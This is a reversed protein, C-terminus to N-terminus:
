LNLLVQALMGKDAEVLAPTAAPVVRLEVDEGILRRLMTMLEPVWSNVDLVAPKLVEQRSFALLQRTLHSATDAADIVKSLYGPLSSDADAKHLSLETYGRIIQLMNNFDHAVGGALQGIAEMKQSQRLQNELVTRHTVDTLTVQVAPQGQWDVPQMFAELRLGTGDRRIADMEFPESSEQGATTEATAVRYAAAWAEAEVVATLDGLAIVEEVGGFGLLGAFAENAFVPVLNQAIVIGQQSGEILSRFRQESERVAAEAAVRDSVDRLIVTFFFQGRLDTRTISAEAPFEEGSKRQGVITDRTSMARGTDGSSAFEHVHQRHRQHLREPILQDLPRGIIEAHDYGFIQEAGRNFLLVKQEADVTIIADVAMNLISTLREESYALEEAMRERETVDHVTGVMRQPQGDADRVVEGQELVIRETGDPRVVRHQYRYPAGSELATHVAAELGAQDDPHVYRLFAEYSAAFEQPKLGFIRYVEDSWALGGEAINWEWSGLHAIQQAKSLTAQASQLAAYAAEKQLRLDLMEIGRGVSALLAPPYLPKQLFDYAGSRLADVAAELEAFATMM